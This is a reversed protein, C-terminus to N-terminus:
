PQPSSILYIQIPLIVLCLALPPLHSCLGSPWPLVGVIWCHLAAPWRPPRGLRSAWVYSKCAFAAERHCITFGFCKNASQVLYLIFSVFSTFKYPVHSACIIEWLTLQLCLFAASCFMRFLVLRLVTIWTIGMTPNYPYKQNQWSLAYWHTWGEQLIFDKSCQVKQLLKLSSYLSLLRGHNIM